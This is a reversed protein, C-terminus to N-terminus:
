EGGAMAHFFATITDPMPVSNLCLVETKVSSDAGTYVYRIANNIDKVEVGTLEKIEFVGKNVLSKIAQMATPQFESQEDNFLSVKGEANTLKVCYQFLLKHGDGYVLVMGMNRFYRATAFRELAEKELDGLSYKERSNLIGGIMTSTLVYDMDAPPRIDLLIMQNSM